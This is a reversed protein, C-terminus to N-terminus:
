TQRRRRAIGLGALSMGLIALTAPEPADVFSLRMIMDDHDDDGAGGGGGDDLLLYAVPAPGTLPLPNGATDTLFYAIDDGLPGPHGNPVVNGTNIVKFNFPLLGAAVPVVVPALGNAMSMPPIGTTDGVTTPPAVGTSSILTGASLSGWYFESTRLAEKGIYEIRINGAGTSSITVSNGVQGERILDTTLRIFDFDQGIDIVDAGGAVTFFPAASVSAAGLGISLAIAAAGNRLASRM